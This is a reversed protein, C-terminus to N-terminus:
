VVCVCVCVCGDLAIALQEAADVDLVATELAVGFLRQAGDDLAVADRHASLARTHSRLQAPEKCGFGAGRGM